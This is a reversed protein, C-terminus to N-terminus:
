HFISSFINLLKCPSITLPYFNYLYFYMLNILIYFAYNYSYCQSNNCVVTNKINSVCLNIFSLLLVVTLSILISLDYNEKNSKKNYSM